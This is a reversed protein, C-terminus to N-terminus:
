EEINFFKLANKKTQIAVAEYSVEKIQAIKDCVYQVYSPENRKGRNPEPTLYPADTEIFLRELPVEKVVRTTKKNNKFTLPGAISIYAGKKIYAKALEASGSFCHLVVGTEYPDEESLIDFVEQDADRSHIIIPLQLSKAMRIQERFWKRQIERPSNDYHYDLGIEGIAVVKEKRAMSKLLLLMSDDLTKSDHPHVGVAAYINDYKEALDCSAVSTEFDAGPNIIIDVGEQTARKIVEDRDKNFRKSDLHAHTDFLM